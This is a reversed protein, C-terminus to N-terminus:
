FPRCIKKLISCLVSM